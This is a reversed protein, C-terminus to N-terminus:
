LNQILKYLEEAVSINVGAVKSLDEPIAKKLNEKTKYEFILKQAKKIGIGKIKTLEFSFNNKTHRSKMYSIAFRHVEDQIKTMLIFAQSKKSVSIENGGTTIARTRHKNDKVLGYVPIKLKFKEISQLVANVHGKGGDLLILDPLRIFGSDNSHLYENFRREIVEQMCAYDNQIFNEKIAFRKYAKKFPRGNKFVVMGAVMSSSSLNSIDYAEIYEPPKSLGLIKSLDELASIEKGTRNNQISLYEEANSKAMMIYKLLNGKQPFSFKISHNCKDYLVKKILEINEIKEEIIINCPINDQSTYYMMLFSELYNEDCEDNCFPFTLKDFLRGNRYMLLSICIGNSSQSSAIFDCNKLDVDFIKQKQSAKTIANIRDRIRAAKEFEMNDSAKEMQMQLKKISLNNGNQIYSKAQNIIENFEESTIHNKCLGICQNIHYNLCPRMVTRKETFKYKCTPLKFVKNIEDVTQTAVFSSTYPGFFEGTKDVNKEATIKPYLEKSIKIYFYGKDDKLLINYKPKHQKILSCELILAEYESDTVIFDYDFVNEVMQIVKPTHSSNHRFYSSVRNKLNKAKGIYIIDNNKNKMLYVGPSITLKSTKQQLFPLRENM